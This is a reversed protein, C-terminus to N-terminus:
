PAAEARVASRPRRTRRSRELGGPAIANEFHGESHGHFLPKQSSLVANPRLPAKRPNKVGKQICGASCYPGKRGLGNLNKGCVVCDKPREDRCRSCCYPQRKNDRAIEVCIAGCRTCSPTVGAILVNWRISPNVYDPPAGFPRGGDDFSARCHPRCFRGDGKIFHRGCSFCEKAEQAKTTPSKRLIDRAIAAALEVRRNFFPTPM